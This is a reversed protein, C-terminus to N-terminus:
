KRGSLVEAEYKKIEELYSLGVPVGNQECFYNWVDGFPYLKLEEQYAMLETMREGDQFEKLMANPTLLAYLLAKQVNRVGTVWASIRDRSIGSRTM